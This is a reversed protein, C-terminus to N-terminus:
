AGVFNGGCVRLTQGTLAAAGPSALFTVAEAVDEPLGGQSLNSLRRAAERTMAPMAATMPTEILGPAVANVAVGASALERAAAEVFGIIGAKSAGYNTQGPNGAIGGISSLCVVRGGPAALLPQLARHLATVAGLNIALTLDWQEPSMRALTKDRTIGANHVVVDLQGAIGAVQEAVEHPAQESALDCLLPWGGLEEALAVTAAEAQLVDLAIVRAGERALARATAAGIGRAAGTVLATQGALPRVRQSVAEHQVDDGVQLLQGSIFASRESLLFRLVAPLRQEADTAVRVLQATSGFRGLERALSKVFGELARQTAAAEIDPMTLHPRGIVLARGCPGLKRVRPHFFDYLSRLQRPTALATADFILAHQRQDPVEDHELPTPPRAWAEGARQWADIATSGVLSTNAGARSLTEALIPSVAGGEDAGDEADATGVTVLRDRLPQEQWPGHDRRLVQPLSLPLGLSSVLKRATSNASLQLLRDAM